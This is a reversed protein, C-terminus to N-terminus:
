NLQPCKKSKRSFNIKITTPQIKIETFKLSIYTQTNQIHSIHCHVSDKSQHKFLNFYLSFINQRVDFHNQSLKDIQYTLGM